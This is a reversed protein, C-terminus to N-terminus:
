FPLFSYSRAGTDTSRHRLGGHGTKLKPTLISFLFIKKKDEDKASLLDLRLFCGCLGTLTAFHQRTPPLITTLFPLFFSSLLHSLPLSPSPRFLFPLSLSLPYSLYHSTIFLMLFIFFLLLPFYFLNWGLREREELDREPNDM